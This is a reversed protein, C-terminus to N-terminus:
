VNQEHEVEYEKIKQNNMMLLLGIQTLIDEYEKETNTNLTISIRSKMYDDGHLLKNQLINSNRM